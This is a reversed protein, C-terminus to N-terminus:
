TSAMPAAQRCGLTIWARHTAARIAPNRISIRHRRILTQFPTKTLMSKPFSYGFTLQRLKIFSADYIFKDERTEGYQGWYNAAEAPSLQRNIPAYGTINGNSDKIETVGTVTLAEEGNRGQVTQKTFGGETMRVNTGSYIQGGYKFDILVGLNFQKYTVSNNLGGTFKPIGNGLVYYNGDSIPAGDTTFIPDGNPSIKQRYGTIMGYPSGVIHQIRVTRTRPEEDALRTQGEILSVVKSINRAFNLSIDWTIPGKVPTGTLL